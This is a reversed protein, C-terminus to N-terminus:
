PQLGAELMRDIDDWNEVIHDAESALNYPHLFKVKVGPWAELHHPGDEFLVDGPVISKDSLYYVEDIWDLYKRLWAAKEKRIFDIGMCDTAIVIHYKYCYKELTRIAGEVPQLSEFFGPKIWMKDEIGFQRMNWDTIDEPKLNGGTLRNHERCVEPVFDVIVGDMDFILKPKRGTAFPELDLRTLTQM